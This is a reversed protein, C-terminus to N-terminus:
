VLESPPGHPRPSLAVRQHLMPSTVAAACTCPAQVTGDSVFKGCVFDMGRLGEIQRGWSLQVLKVHPMSGFSTIKVWSANIM